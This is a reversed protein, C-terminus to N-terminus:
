KRMVGIRLVLAPVPLIYFAIEEEDAAWYLGTWLDHWNLHFSITVDGLATV